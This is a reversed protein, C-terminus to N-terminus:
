AVRAAAMPNGGFTTGHAGKSLMTGVAEGYAIVAGVPFGGGLGKALTMVDPKVGHRQHAFWSGTRGVGTQIEDVILLAGHATALERAATMFDHSLPVIGAEGQIPELIIAAVHDGMASTLAGVDDPAIFQVGAPLPAFPERIAPKHTMALAGMTRGHFSDELAIITERGTRRALKFAAENAEAGSNSFFVRSGTPAQALAILKEALAIQAPTAFFNSTHALTAAQDAVAKVWAPHAHGLANVAIGGLLDLYRNGDADWVHSGDGRVLVRMPTGYTGMLAHSYRQLEQAGQALGHEGHENPSM